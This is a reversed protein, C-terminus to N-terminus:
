DLKNIFATRDFKTSIWGLQYCRIFDQILGKVTATIRFDVSSTAVNGVFDASTAFFNHKGLKQYFSDVTTSALITAGDWVTDFALIGSGVDTTTASVNIIDGRIYDKALPSYITIVPPTQDVPEVSLNEPEANNITIELPTIMGLLTAGTFDSEASTENTIFATALTYAGGAGTGQTEVRYNGDQPNPITVYEDDGGFGSYFAGLIENVELGTAFDKGIRKNDPAIVVIDAPSLIKIVLLKMNPIIHWWTKVLNDTTRNTLKNFVLGEADDPLDIHKSELINLDSNIFNGSSLPVTNDGAGYNLEDPYGHEWKVQETSSALTISAITSDNGIDGVINTIEVGANLLQSTGASLNELFTNTPYGNPYKEVVGSDKLTLYNYIPLLERFSAINQHIYDFLEYDLKKAERSLLFKIFSYTFDGPPAEAGEWPYYAKPAGLHPTGLFILQDVDNAYQPSQIYQRAALGGMSHAVLDVKACQCINKVEAIKDKLAVATLVNSFRWDYPFSFLNQGEVYGNAALTAILDDYTHFIPDILWVGDKEASGLIGPIIIVPDIPKENTSDSTLWPDFLVNDSVANGLGLPNLTPHQPGSADGWWNNRADVPSAALSYIG